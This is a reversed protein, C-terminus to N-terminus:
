DEESTAEEKKIEEGEENFLRLKMMDVFDFEHKVGHADVLQFKAAVANSCLLLFEQNSMETLKGFFLEVIGQVYDMKEGGTVYFIHEYKTVVIIFKSNIKLLTIQVLIIFLKILYVVV